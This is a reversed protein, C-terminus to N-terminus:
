WTIKEEIHLLPKDVVPDNGKKAMESFVSKWFRRPHSFEQSSIKNGQAARACIYNCYVNKISLNEYIIRISFGVLVLLNRYQITGLLFFNHRDIKLPKVAVCAATKSQFSACNTHQPSLVPSTRM